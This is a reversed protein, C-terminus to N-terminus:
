EHLGVILIYIYTHQNRIELRQKLINVSKFLAFPAGTNSTIHKESIFRQLLNISRSHKGLWNSAVTEIPQQSIAAQTCRTYVYSVTSAGGTVRRRVYAMDMEKAYTRRQARTVQSWLVAPRACSSRDVTNISLNKRSWSACQYSAHSTRACGHEQPQQICPQVKAYTITYYVRRVRAGIAVKATRGLQINRHSHLRPLRLAHM